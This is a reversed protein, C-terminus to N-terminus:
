ATGRADSFLSDRDAKVAKRTRRCATAFHEPDREILVCRKGLRVCSVGTTGSGAYPDIVTEAAPFFTLCWEILRVPKQTEHVAGDKMLAVRNLVLRRLANERSTFALECDSSCIDQGKDWVLWGMRAPLHRAFYNAGWICQDRSVRFIERFVDNSPPEDDWGKFDYAKRGGHSSTSERMGDRGIGYPPDTLCLDFEGDGFTPLVDRCDANILRCPGITVERM